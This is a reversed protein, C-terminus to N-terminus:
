ERGRTAKGLYWKEIQEVQELTYGRAKGLSISPSPIKGGHIWRRVTLEAVGLRRALAPPTIFEIM